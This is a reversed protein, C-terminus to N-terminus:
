RVNPTCNGIEALPPSVRLRGTSVVSLRVVWVAGGRSRLLRASCRLESSGEAPVAVGPAGSNAFVPGPQKRPWIQGIGAEDLLAGMFGFNANWVVWAVSADLRGFEEYAELM